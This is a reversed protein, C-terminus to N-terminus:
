AWKAMLSMIGTGLLAVGYSCLQLKMNRQLKSGKFEAALLDVLAMYILLGASVANLVGVVILATPSNEEYVSQLLIGMIIGGPTTVSFFFVMIAKIRLSYEAQLICGGLGMGEFLQHFCMAAVLGRIACFDDSSGMSLGIVVSHVVIGLELVQAVVRNKLLATEKDGFLIQVIHGHGRGHLQDSALDAHDVKGNGDAGNTVTISTGQKSLSKGYFAMAFTDMMMTLYASVMSIFPTFPFARWPTEPLCPSTLDNWSDPMVHMFGTAIIVGSAFCKVLLFVDKDPHLAPVSRTFLPLSVGVMSAVLICGIAIYNLKLAKAKNICKGTAATACKAAEDESKAEAAVFALSMVLSLMSLLLFTSARLARRIQVSM